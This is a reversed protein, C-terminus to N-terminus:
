TGPAFELVLLGLRLGRLLVAGEEVVVEGLHLALGLLLHVVLGDLLLARQVDLVREVVLSPGEQM